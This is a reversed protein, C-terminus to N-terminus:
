PGPPQELMGGCGARRAWYEWARQTEPSYPKYGANRADIEGRSLPKVEGLALPALLPRAHGVALGDPRAEYIAGHIFRELYLARTEAQTPTGDLAFELIDGREVLEPALSRALLYRGPDDPHRVSVHGYADVVDENALIRNAIVLERVMRDLDSM